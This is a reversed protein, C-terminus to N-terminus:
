GCQRSGSERFVGKMFFREDTEKAADPGNREKMLKVTVKARWLRGYENGWNTKDGHVKKFIFNPNDIYVHLTEVTNRDDSRWRDTGIKAQWVITSKIYYTGDGYTNPIRSFEARHKFVAKANDCNRDANLRIVDAQGTAAPLTSVVVATAAIWGLRLIWRHRSKM